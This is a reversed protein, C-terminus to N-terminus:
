AEDGEPGDAYLGNKHIYEEVAPPVLDKVPLDRRIRDRIMTSSVDDPPGSLIEVTGARGPQGSSLRSRIWAPLQSATAEGDFPRRPYALVGASDLLERCDRWTEIEVLSDTGMILAVQTGANRFHRVTHITFSPEERLVECSSVSLSPEGATALAALAFRHFPDTMRARTKHPPQRAPVLLVRSLGAALAARAIRVHGAPIPDFSGGLLGVIM